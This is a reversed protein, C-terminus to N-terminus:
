KNAQRYESPSMLVDKKFVKYFTTKSNFGSDMAVKLVTDNSNLLLEKAFAVRYGNIFEFFNRKTIQNIVQSLYHPPIDLSNALSTLSLQNNLFPKEKEMFTLTSQCLKEALAQDLSSHQYKEKESMHTKKNTLKHTDIRLKKFINVQQLGFINLSIILLASIVHLAILLHESFLEGTLLIIILMCWIIALASTMVKLWTLSVKENFSLQEGILIRYNSLLKFCTPIYYSAQAIAIALLSFLIIPIWIDFYTGQIDGNFLEIITSSNFLAVPLIMLLILLSPSFHLLLSGKLKSGVMDSIYAYYLPLFLGNIPLILLSLHAFQQDLGAIDIAGETLSIALM